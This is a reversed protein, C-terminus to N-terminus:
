IRFFFDSFILNAPSTLLVFLYIATRVSVLLLSLQLNLTAVFQTLLHCPVAPALSNVPNGGSMSEMCNNLLQMRIDGIADVSEDCDGGGVVYADVLETADGLDRDCLVSSALLEANIEHETEEPISDASITSQRKLEAPTNNAVTQPPIQPVNNITTPLRLEDIECYGDDDPVPDVREIVAAGNRANAPLTPTSQSDVTTTTPTAAPTPATQGLSNKHSRRNQHQCSSHCDDCVRKSIALLEQRCSVKMHDNLTETLSQVQAFAALM